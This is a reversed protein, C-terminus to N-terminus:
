FFILSFGYSSIKCPNESRRLCSHFISPLYNVILLIPPLHSFILVKGGIM